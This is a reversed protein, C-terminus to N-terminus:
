IDDGSDTEDDPGDEDGETAGNNAAFGPLGAFDRLFSGHDGQDAQYAELADLRNGGFTGEPMEQAAASHGVAMAYAFVLGGIIFGIVLARVTRPLHLAKNRISTASSTFQTM